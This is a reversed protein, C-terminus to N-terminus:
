VLKVLSYGNICFTTLWKAGYPTKMGPRNSKYKRKLGQSAGTQWLARQGTRHRFLGSKDWLRVFVWGPNQKTVFCKRWRPPKCNPALCINELNRVSCNKVWETLLRRGYKMSSRNYPLKDKLWKKFSFNFMVTSQINPLPLLPLFLASSQM